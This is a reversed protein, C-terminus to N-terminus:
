ALATSLQSLSRIKTIVRSTLEMDGIEFASSYFQGRTSVTM